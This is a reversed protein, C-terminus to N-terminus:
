EGTLVGVNGSYWDHQAVCRLLPISVFRDSHTIPNPQLDNGSYHHDQANQLIAEHVANSEPVHVTGKDDSM